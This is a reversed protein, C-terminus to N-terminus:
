KFVGFFHFFLQKVNIAKKLTLQDRHQRNQTASELAAIFIAIHAEFHASNLCCLFSTLEISICIEVKKTLCNNRNSKEAVLVL